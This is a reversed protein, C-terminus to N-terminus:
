QFDHCNIKCDFVIQIVMLKRCSASNYLLEFATFSVYEHISFVVGVEWFLVRSWRRVQKSLVTSTIMKGM